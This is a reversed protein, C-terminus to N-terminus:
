GGRGNDLFLSLLLRIIMTIAILAMYILIAIKLQGKVGQKSGSLGLYFFFFGIPASLCSFIGYLIKGARDLETMYGDPFGLYRIHVLYVFFPLAISLIGFFVSILRDFSM